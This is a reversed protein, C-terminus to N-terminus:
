CPAPTNYKGYEALELVGSKLLVLCWKISSCLATSTVITFCYVFGACQTTTGSQSIFQLPRISYVKSESGLRTVVQSAAARLCTLSLKSRRRQFLPTPFLTPILFHYLVTTCIDHLSQRTIRLFRPVSLRDPQVTFRDRLCHPSLVYPVAGSAITVLDLDYDVWRLVRLASICKHATICCWWTGSLGRM